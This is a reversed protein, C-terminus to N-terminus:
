QTISQNHPAEQHAHHISQNDQRGAQRQVNSQHTRRDHEDVLQRGPAQALTHKHLTHPQRTRGKISQAAASSGGQRGGQAHTHGTRGGGALGAPTISQMRGGAAPRGQLWGLWGVRGGMGKFPDYVALRGLFNNGVSGSFSQHL